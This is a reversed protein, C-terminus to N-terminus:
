AVAAVVAADEDRVDPLGVPEAQPTADLTGPHEAFTRLRLYRTGLWAILPRALAPIGEVEAAGVLRPEDLEHVVSGIQVRCHGAVVVNRAWRSAAGLPVIIRYGDTTRVPHVPTLRITGTTRGVHELIGIEGHSAEAIGRRVLRPNVLRNVTGAGIRPHRRWWEGLAGISTMLLAAIALSKKM